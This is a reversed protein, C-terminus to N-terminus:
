SGYGYRAVEAETENLLFGVIRRRDLV